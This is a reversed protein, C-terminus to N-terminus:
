QDADLYKNINCECRKPGVGPQEGEVVPLYCNPCIPIRNHIGTRTGYFDHYYTTMVSETRPTERLSEQIRLSRRISDRLSM